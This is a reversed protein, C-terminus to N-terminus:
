WGDKKRGNRGEGGSVLGWEWVRGGVRRGLMRAIGWHIGWHISVGFLFGQLSMWGGGRERRSVGRGGGGDLAPREDRGSETKDEGLGLSAEGCVEELRELRVESAGRGEGARRGSGREPQLGVDSRGGRGCVAIGIGVLLGARVVPETHVYRVPRLRTSCSWRMGTM